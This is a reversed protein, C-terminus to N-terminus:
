DELYKAQSHLSAISSADEPGQWHALAKVRSVSYTRCNGSGSKSELQTNTKKFGMIPSLWSGRAEGMPRNYGTSIYSTLFKM